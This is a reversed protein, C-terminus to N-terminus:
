SKNMKHFCIKKKLDSFPHFLLKNWSIGKILGNDKNYPFNPWSGWIKMWQVVHINNQSRSCSCSYSPVNWTVNWGCWLFIGWCLKKVCVFYEKFFRFISGCWLFIQINRSMDLYKLMNEMDWLGRVNPIVLPYSLNCDLNWVFLLFSTLLTSHEYMGVVIYLFHNRYDM